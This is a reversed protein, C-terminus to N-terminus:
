SHALLLAILFVNDNNDRIHAAIKHTWEENLSFRDFDRHASIEWAEAILSPTIMYRSNEVEMFINGDNGTRRTVPIGNIKM